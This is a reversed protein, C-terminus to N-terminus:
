TVPLSLRSRGAPVSSVIRDLAGPLYNHLPNCEDTVEPVGSETSYEIRVLLPLDISKTM